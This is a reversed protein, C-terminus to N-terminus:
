NKVIKKVVRGLNTEIKLFYVGAELNELKVEKIEKEFRNILRLSTDFVGISNVQVNKPCTFFLTKNVPNPFCTFQSELYSNVSLNEEKESILQLPDFLDGISLNSVFVIPNNSTLYVKDESADYIKFILEDGYTSGLVTLYSIYTNSIEDFLINSKGRCNGQADFAAVIDSTDNSLVEDIKLSVVISGDLNYSATNVSWNPQANLHLSAIGFLISLVQIKM